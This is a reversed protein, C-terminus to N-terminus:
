PSSPIRGNRPPAARWCCASHLRLQWLLADPTLNLCPESELSTAPQATRRDHDLRRKSPPPVAPHSPPLDAVYTFVVPVVLLSLLTSTVLGGIVAIAMPQRFSADAGLGVAIPLMGAISLAEEDLHPSAVAYTLIPGGRITIASVVPQQLDVPLDSRVRDVADKSDILADPLKLLLVAPIPNRLSWTGFNM